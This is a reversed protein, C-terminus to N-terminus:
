QRRFVGIASGTSWWWTLLTAVTGLLLAVPLMYVSLRHTILWHVGCSVSTAVTFVTNAKGARALLRALGGPIISSISQDTQM